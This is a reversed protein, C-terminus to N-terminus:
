HQHTHDHTHDHNHNQAQGHAHNHSHGHLAPDIRKINTVKGEFLWQEYAQITALAGDAIEECTEPRTTTYATLMSLFAKWKPRVERFDIIYFFAAGNEESIQLSQQLQQAVPENGFLSGEIIYLYGLILPVTHLDPLQCLPISAISEDSEGLAKLDKLLAPLREQDFPLCANTRKSAFSALLEEAPKYFGYLKRVFAQYTEVTLDFFLV